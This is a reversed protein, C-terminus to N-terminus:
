KLILVLTSVIYKLIDKTCLITYASKIWNKSTIGEHLYEYKTWVAEYLQGENQDKIQLKTDNFYM